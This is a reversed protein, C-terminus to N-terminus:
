HFLEYVAEHTAKRATFPFDTLPCLQHCGLGHLVYNLQLLLKLSNPYLNMSKISHYSTSMVFTVCEM